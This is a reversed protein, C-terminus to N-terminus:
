VSFMNEVQTSRQLDFTLNSGKFKNKKITSCSLSKFKWHM